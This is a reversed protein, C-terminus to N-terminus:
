KLKTEVYNVIDEFTQFNKLDEDEVKINFVKEVDNVITLVTFSDLGLDNLLSSEPKINEMPFETYNVLIEKLKEEIM